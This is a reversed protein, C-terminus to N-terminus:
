ASLVDGAEEVREPTASKGSRETRPVVVEAAASEAAVHRISAVSICRSRGIRISHLQKAAILRYAWSRSVGLMDAAEAATAMPPEM